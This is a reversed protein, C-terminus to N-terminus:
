RHVEVNEQIQRIADARGSGLGHRTVNVAGAAAALRLMQTGDLDRLVAVALAATMSDGAGRADAVEMAPVSITFREGALYAVAGGGGLSVVVADAGQERVRAAFADISAESDDAIFGDRHLEEASMKLVDVGGELACTLLEGALDAVVRVGNVRLDNALRRYTDAPLAGEQRHSGTLVCVGAALAEALTATYLEDLEHRGLRAVPAMWIERREGGRRDHIYAGNPEAIAVARVDIEAEGLLHGLVSGSEGGLPGCLVARPGLVRVMRGVWFGQGGPHIHLEERGEASEEITVTLLPAPAFVCVAEAV